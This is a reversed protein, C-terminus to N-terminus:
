SAPVYRLRVASGPNPVFELFRISNRVEDYVWDGDVVNGEDDLEAPYFSYVAGGPDEVEVELTAPDPQGSLSFQQTLGTALLGLLEYGEQDVVDIAVGGALASTAECATGPGTLVCSYTGDRAVLWDVFAAEGLVSSDEGDSVVVVTLPAGDRLFGANAVDREIELAEYVADRPQSLLDETGWSLSSIPNPIEPELWRQGGLDLLVGATVPDGVGSSVVGVHWDIGSGILFDFFLPLHELFTQQGDADPDNQVVFLIDSVEHTDQYVTDEIVLEPPDETAKDLTIYCGSVLLLLSCRTM